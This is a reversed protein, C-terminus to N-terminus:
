FATGALWPVSKRSGLTGIIFNKFPPAHVFAPASVMRHPGVFTCARRGPSRLPVLAAASHAFGKEFSSPSGSSKLENCSGRFGEADEEGQCPPPPPTSLILDLSLTGLCFPTTLHAKLCQFRDLENPPQLPPPAPPVRSTGLRSHLAVQSCLQRSTMQNGAGQTRARERAHASCSPLRGHAWSPPSPAPPLCSQLPALQEM